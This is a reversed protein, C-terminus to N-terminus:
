GVASYATGFCLYVASYAALLLGGRAPKKTEAVNTASRLLASPLVPCFRCLFLSLKALFGGGFSGGFSGATQM